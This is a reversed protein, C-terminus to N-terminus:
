RKQLTLSVKSGKPAATGAAPTQAVVTGDGNFNIAYGAKEIEVIAERLGLGSVDPIHGAASTQPTPLRRARSAGLMDRLKTDRESDKTAYLVPAAASCKEAHYDPEDGLMGRSYMRRAINLLISGSIVGANRSAHSGPRSVMVMCTYKPDSFPFFGCFSYRYAGDEYGKPKVVTPDNPNKKLKERDAASLERAIKSTGTKGAIDIKDDKLVKATGGQGYVVKHLM